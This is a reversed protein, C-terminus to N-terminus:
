FMNLMAVLVASLSTLVYLTVKVTGVPVGMKLAAERDGGSAYIWNGFRTNALVYAALLTLGVWWFLRCRCGSSRDTSFLPYLLDDALASKMGFIQTTGVLM